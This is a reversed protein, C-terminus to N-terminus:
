FVRSSLSHYLKALKPTLTKECGLADWLLFADGGELDITHNNKIKKAIYRCDTISYGEERAFQMLIEISKTKDKSTLIIESM